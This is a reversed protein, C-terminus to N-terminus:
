ALQRVAGAAEFGPHGRILQDALRDIPEALLEPNDLFALGIPFGVRGHHRDLIPDFHLQRRLALGAVFVVFLALRQRVIGGHQVPGPMTVPRHRLPFVRNEVRPILRRRRALAQGDDELCVRALDGPRMQLRVETASHRKRLVMIGRRPEVHNMQGLIAQGAGVRRFGALVAAPAHAGLVGSRLFVVHM